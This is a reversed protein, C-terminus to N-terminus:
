FSDRYQASFCVCLNSHVGPVRADTVSEPLPSLWREPKWEAADPGWTDSDINCGLLSMFIKTDKAVFIENVTKGNTLTLPRSLPLIM